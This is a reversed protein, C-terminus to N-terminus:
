WYSSHWRGREQWMKKMPVCELLWWLPQMMMEDHIPELADEADIETCSMRYHDAPTHENPEPPPTTTTLFPITMRRLMGISSSGPSPTRPPTGGDVPSWRRGADGNSKVRKHTPRRILVATDEDDEIGEPEDVFKVTSPSREQLFDEPYSDRSKFNEFASSIRFASQPIGLAKLRKSDSCFM